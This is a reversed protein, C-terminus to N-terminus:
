KTNLQGCAALIDSGKTTRVMARLKREVLMEKFQDVKEHSPRRYQSGPFPNFPIINIIAKRHGLLKLLEDADAQRDNLEDILLYEYTM